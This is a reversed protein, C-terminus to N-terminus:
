DRRLFYRGKGKEGRQYNGCGVGRTKLRGTYAKITHVKKESILEVVHTKRLEQFAEESLPEVAETKSVGSDYETEISARCREIKAKVEELPITRTQLPVESSEEIVDASAVKPGESTMELFSSM